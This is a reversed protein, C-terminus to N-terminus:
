DTRGSPEHRDRIVRARYQIQALEHQREQLEAILSELQEMSRGIYDSLGAESAQEMGRVFKEDTHIPLEAMDTLRSNENRLQRIEEDAQELQPRLKKEAKDRGEYYAVIGTLAAVALALTVPAADM